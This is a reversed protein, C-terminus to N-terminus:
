RGDSFTLEQVGRRRASSMRRKEEDGSVALRIDALYPGYM